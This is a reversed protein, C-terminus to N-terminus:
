SINNTRVGMEDPGDLMLSLGNKRRAEAKIWERAEEDQVRYIVALDDPCGRGCLTIGVQVLASKFLDEARTSGLPDLRRKARVQNVQVLLGAAPNLMSAVDALLQPADVGRLLWQEVKKDTAADVAMAEERQTDLFEQESQEIGLVVGWDPRWPSRTGLKEYNPRKAPPKREWADREEEARDEAYMNYGDTGPFDRPFCACGAEFAQTQRERQGSVRTGTYILSSLFPMGWGQPVILTWGHLSTMSPPHSPTSPASTQPSPLTANEVSRQILLVPVRNDNRESKLPTGPVLNQSLPCSKPIPLHPPPDRSVNSRRQDLDKKKYKPMRLVM